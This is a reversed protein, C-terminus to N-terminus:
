GVQYQDIATLLGVYGESILDDLTEGGTERTGAYRRAVSEVLPAMGDVVRQRLTTLPSHDITFLTPEAEGSVVSWEGSDKLRLYEEMLAQVHAGVDPSAPEYGQEMQM